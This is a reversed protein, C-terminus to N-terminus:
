ASRGAAVQRSSRGGRDIPVDIALAGRAFSVSIQEALTPLPLHVVRRFAGFRCDVGRLILADEVISVAVDMANLGPLVVDVHIMAGRVAVMAASGTVSEFLRDGHPTLDTTGGHAASESGGIRPQNPFPSDFRHDPLPWVDGSEEGRSAM